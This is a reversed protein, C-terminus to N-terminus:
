KLIMKHIFSEIPKRFYGPINKPMDILVMIGLGEILAQLQLAIIATDELPKKKNEDIIKIINKKNDEAIKKIKGLIEPHFIFAEHLFRYYLSLNGDRKRIAELLTAYPLWFREISNIINIENIEIPDLNKLPLYSLFFYQVVEQHIEKKTKFYYYFAGKSLGSNEVLDSFTSAEYGKKMFLAFANQIIIDRTEKSM